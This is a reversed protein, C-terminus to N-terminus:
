REDELVITIPYKPDAELSLIGPKFNIEHEANELLMPRIVITGVNELETSELWLEQRQSRGTELATYMLPLERYLFEGERDSFSVGFWCYRLWEMHNTLEFVIQTSQMYQRARILKLTLAAKGEDKTQNVTSQVQVLGSTFQTSVLLLSILLPLSKTKM